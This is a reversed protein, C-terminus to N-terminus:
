QPKQPKHYRDNAQDVEVPKNLGDYYDEVRKQKQNSQYLGGFGVDKRVSDEAGGSPKILFGTDEKKPDPNKGSTLATGGTFLSDDAPRSLDHPAATKPQADFWNGDAAGPRPGTEPALLYKRLEPDVAWEPLQSAQQNREWEEIQQMQQLREQDRAAQEEPLTYIWLQPKKEAEAADPPLRIGMQSSPGAGVPGTAEKERDEPLDKQPTPVATVAAGRGEPVILPEYKIPESASKEKKAAEEASAGVAVLGMTLVAWFM